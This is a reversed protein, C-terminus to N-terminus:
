KVLEVVPRVGRTDICSCTNVAGYSSVYYANVSEDSELWYFYPKGNFTAVRDEPAIGMVEEETMLRVSSGDTSRKILADEDSTFSLRSGNNLEMKITSEDWKGNRGYPSTYLINESLLKKEGDKEIVRWELSKGDLSTGFFVLDESKLDEGEGYLAHCKDCLAKKLVVVNEKVLTYSSGKCEEKNILNTCEANTCKTAHYGGESIYEGNGTCAEEKTEGCSCFLTHTLTEANSSLYTDFAHEVKETTEGCKICRYWHGSEDHEIFSFDHGTPPIIETKDYGCVSCKYSKSGADTCSPEITVSIGEGFYHAESESVDQCRSCIFWHSDSDSVMLNYDHGLPAIVEDIKLGCVTCVESLIGSETCTPEKTVVKTWNHSERTETAGCSCTRTETGHQSESPLTTEEWEGYSHTERLLVEGCMKCRLVFEAGTHELNGVEHNLVPITERRKEGCGSCTYERIGEKTCTASLTVVGEGFEHEHSKKECSTFVFITLLVISLIVLVRIGKKLNKM